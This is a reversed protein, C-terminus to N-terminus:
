TYWNHTIKIIHKVKIRKVNSPQTSSGQSLRFLSRKALNRKDHFLLTLFGLRWFIFSPPRYFWWTLSFQHSIFMVIIIKTKKNLKILISTSFPSPLSNTRFFFTCLFQSQSPLPELHTSSDFLLLNRTTILLLPFFSRSLLTLFEIPALIGLLLLQKQINKNTCLTNYRATIL